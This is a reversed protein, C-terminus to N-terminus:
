EQQVPLRGKDYHFGVYKNQIRNLQRPQKKRNAKWKQEKPNSLDM